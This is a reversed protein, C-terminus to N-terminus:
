LREGLVMVIKQLTHAEGQVHALEAELARVQDKLRRVIESDLPVLQNGNSAARAPALAGNGAAKKEARNRKHREADRARREEDSLGKSATKPNPIGAAERYMAVYKHLQSEAIGFLKATAGRGLTGEHYEKGWALKQEDTYTKRATM